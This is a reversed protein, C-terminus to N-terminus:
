QAPIRSRQAPAHGVGFAQQPGSQAHTLEAKAKPPLM